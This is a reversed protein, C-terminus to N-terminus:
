FAPETPDHNYQVRKRSLYAARWASAYKAAFNQAEHPRYHNLVTRYTRIAQGMLLQVILPM